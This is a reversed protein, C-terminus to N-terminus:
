RAPKASALPTAPAPLQELLGVLFGAALLALVLLLPVLWWVPHPRESAHPLNRRNM